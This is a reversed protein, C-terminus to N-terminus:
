LAKAMAGRPIELSDSIVTTSGMLQHMNQGEQMLHELLLYSTFRELLFSLTRGQYPDESLQHGSALFSKTVIEAKKIIRLFSTLPFSGCSPSAILIPQSLFHFAETNSIVGCDVANATFRLIDRTHHSGAYNALMGNPLELGSGILYSLGPLPLVEDEITLDTMDSASLVRAWPHNTSKLGLPVNLVFRRYHAITIQGSTEGKKSLLNCLQFLSAFEGLRRHDALLYEEPSAGPAPQTLEFYEFGKWIPFEPKRHGVFYRYNM